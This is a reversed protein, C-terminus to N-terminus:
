ITHKVKDGIYWSNGVGVIRLKGSLYLYNTNNGAFTHACVTTVFSTKCNISRGLLHIETMKCESWTKTKSKNLTLRKCMNNNFLTDTSIDLIGVFIENGTWRGFYNMINFIICQNQHNGLVNQNVTWRFTIVHFIEIKYIFSFALSNGCWIENCDRIKLLFWHILSM